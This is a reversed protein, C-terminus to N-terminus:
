APWKLEDILLEKKFFHVECANKRRFCYDHNFLPPTYNELLLTLNEKSFVEMDQLLESSNLLIKEFLFVQERSGIQGAVRIIEDHTFSYEWFCDKKIRDINVM